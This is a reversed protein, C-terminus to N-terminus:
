DTDERRTKEYLAAIKAQDVKTMPQHELYEMSFTGKGETASRLVTSYGFLEALPVDCEIKTTGELTQTNKVLAKRKSINSIVDGQFEAPVEVEVSMIPQLAIPGAENYCQRFAYIAAAQFARDNSDVPHSAGDELVVRVNTVPNGTLRGEEVAVQFGKEISSFFEPPIGDGSFKNVFQFADSSGDEIPEVYGIVRGYQGSGGSQKKHLYDFKAKRSVKEQYRVKPTGIVCEVGYERQLREVYVNLHLEGMGSIITEKTHVDFSVRFTPDEQSFRMLAKTFNDADKSTKPELSLSIVPEPVYMTEMGYNIAGDTFTTGSTCDIGFSAVIEGPGATDIDEMDNSHMRVLRPLKIKTRTKGSSSIMMGRRLTGQYVRLYTLQGFKSKELKFALALLPADEATPSLPMVKEENDLDLATNKVDCPSPLYDVVADLLAQVGKNKFASGMLVPAFKLSLTARRIAAKLQEVTPEEELIFLEEIEEDVEGLRELLLTRCRNYENVLNDPVSDEIRISEGNAGEFYISRGTVLCVVGKHSDELGIPIQVLGANIHLKTRVDDAIRHPNAGNRDLKNVFVIRPVDYRKMQRDVTITQSQVSGVSCIVLVAGDLVRLAREVEVTFDVHGPTDIINIHNDKWKTFTAASQITIGKERELDMSDMKAGVGDKGRVEHIAHIRGTYYLIRETLTTKGSDIHASIGINRMRSLDHM